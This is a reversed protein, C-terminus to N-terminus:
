IEIVEGEKAFHVFAGAYKEERKALVADTSRCDHHILLLQKIGARRMFEMGMAPTSHGFGARLNYDKETYQADYLLLDAGAAFSALAEDTATGHEYDTAYVVSKGMATLRYIVSGGPHDGTIGEISFGGYRMPLELPGIVLDGPYETLRCPWFPPSYLADFTEQATKGAEPTLLLFTKQGREYLRPYMGLGIVHDLHLHSLLILPPEPLDAPASIIGTGADLFVTSDGAQLMYCSTACGYRMFAEGHVPVSGRTGLVTLRLSSNAEM